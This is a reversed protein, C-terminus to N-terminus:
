ITMSIIATGVRAVRRVTPNPPRIPLFISSYAYEVYKKMATLARQANEYPHLLAKLASQVPCLTGKDFIFVGQRRDIKKTIVNGM